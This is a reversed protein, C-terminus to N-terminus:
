SAVMERHHQPSSSAKGTGASSESPRCFFDIDSMSRHVFGHLGHTDDDHHMRNVNTEFEQNRDKMRKGALGFAAEADVEDEESHIGAYWRGVRVAGNEPDRIAESLEEHLTRLCLDIKKEEEPLPARYRSAPVRLNEDCLFAEYIIDVDLDNIRPHFSRIDVIQLGSDILTRLLRDQLGISGSCRTQMFYYLPPNGKADDGTDDRAKAAARRSKRTFYHIILRLCFPSVLITILITLIISAAIDETIFEEQKAFVVVIFAFEGLASMASAVVLANFKTLPRAWIFTAMKGSLALLIIFANKVVEVSAFARVPVEFAITCGFFIRLLWSLIRKVQSVWVHEVQHSTCFSLGAIFCGLLHSGGSARAAPALGLTLLFLMGLSVNEEHREPVRPYIFRSLIVPIVYIALFGFGFLLMVASFIPKIINWTTPNELASLESLLILALIDDLVAAAIILQGTPSNLLRGARLVSLSIGMSTPSVSAGVVFSGKVDLGLIHRAVLFGMALTVMSGMIAVVAGRLGILRLMELDVDIGAEVVLLMLGLAGVLKWAGVWPVFQALHPGLLVGTLIQGVLPPAGVLTVVKGAVWLAVMFVLSKYLDLFTYNDVDCTEQQLLRWGGGNLLSDGVVGEM